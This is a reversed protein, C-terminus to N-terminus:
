VESNKDQSPPIKASNIESSSNGSMTSSRFKRRTMFHRMAQRYKPVSWGYLFPNVLSNVNVIVAALHYLWALLKVYGRCAHCEYLLISIIIYPWFSAQFAAIVIFVARTVKREREYVSRLANVNVSSTNARKLFRGQKRVSLIVIINLVVLALFTLMIHASVILGYLQFKNRLFAVLVGLMTSYCWICISVIRARKKTVRRSYQLPTTVAIYRDLSLTLLVFVSVAVLVSNVALVTVSFPSQKTVAFYVFWFGTLPGFLIGVMLDSIALSLILTSSPTGKINKLPDIVTTIIIIGNAVITIPSIILNLIGTMWCIPIFDDGLRDQLAKSYDDASLNGLDSHGFLAAM